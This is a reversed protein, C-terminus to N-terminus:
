VLRVLWLRSIDDDGIFVGSGLGCNIVKFIRDLVGERFRPAHNWVKLREADWTVGDHSVILVPNQGTIYLIANLKKCM